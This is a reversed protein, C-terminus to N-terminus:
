DTINLIIGPNNSAPPMIRLSNDVIWVRVQGPCEVYRYDYYTRTGPEATVIKIKIGKAEAETGGTIDAIRRRVLELDAFVEDWGTPSKLRAIDEPSAKIQDDEQDCRPDGPKVIRQFLFAAKSPASELTLTAAAYITPRGERKPLQKLRVTSTAIPREPFIRRTDGSTKDIVNYFFGVDEVTQAQAVTVGCLAILAGLVFKM